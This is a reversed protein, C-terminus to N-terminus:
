VFPLYVDAYLIIGDSMKVAKHREIRIDHTAFDQKNNSKFSLLLLTFILGTVLFIKVNFQRSTTLM